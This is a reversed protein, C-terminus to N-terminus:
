RTARLRQLRGPVVTGNGQLHKCGVRTVQCVAAIQKTGSPVPAPLANSGAPVHKLDSWGQHELAAEIPQLTRCFSLISGAKVGSRSRGNTSAPVAFTWTLEQYSSHFPEWGLAAMKRQFWKSQRLRGRCLTAKRHPVSTKRYLCRKVIWKSQAGVTLLNYGWHHRALLEIFGWYIPM